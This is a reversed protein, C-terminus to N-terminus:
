DGNRADEIKEGITKYNSIRPVKRMRIWVGCAMIKGSPPHEVIRSTSKGDFRYYSLGTERGSVHWGTVFDHFGNIEAPQVAMGWESLAGLFQVKKGEVQFLWMGGNAGQGGRECGVGATARVVRLNEKLPVEDFTLGQFLAHIVEPGCSNDVKVQTLLLRRIATIQGNELRATRTKTQLDDFRFDQWLGKDQARLATVCCIVLVFM